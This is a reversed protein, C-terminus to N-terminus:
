IVDRRCTRRAPASQASQASATGALLLCSLGISITTRLRSWSNRPRAMRRASSLRRLRRGSLHGRKFSAPGPSMTLTAPYSPVTRSTPGTAVIMSVSSCPKSCRWLMGFVFNSRALVTNTNHVGMPPAVVDTGPIRYEAPFYNFVSPAYFVNQGMAQTVEDLFIGDSTAGVGRLFAQDRSRGM